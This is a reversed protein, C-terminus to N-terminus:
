KEVISIHQEVMFFNDTDEKKSTIIYAEKGKKKKVSV